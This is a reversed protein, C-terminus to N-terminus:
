KCSLTAVAKGTITGTGTNAIVGGCHNVIKKKNQLLGHNDITGFNSIVGSNETNVVSVAVAPLTLLAGTYNNITGTNVLTGDSASPMTYTGHNEILGKNASLPNGKTLDFNGNNNIIGYNPINVFGGFTGENTVTGYNMLTDFGNDLLLTANADVLLTTGAPVLFEIRQGVDQYGSIECTKDAWSGGIAACISADLPPLQQKTAATAAGSLLTFALGIVTMSASLARLSQTYM